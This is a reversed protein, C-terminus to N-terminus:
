PRAAVDAQPWLERLQKPLSNKIKHVEGETVKESLVRLVAQIGEDLTEEQIRPAAAAVQRRFEAQDRYKLPKDAPHWGEYFFGRVLMPLQAALHACSDVTLHDRLAHLVARLLVYADQRDDCDLDEMLQHLWEHTRHVTTDFAEIGLTTM